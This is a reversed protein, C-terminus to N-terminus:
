IIKELVRTKSIILSNLSSVFVIAVRSCHKMYRETKSKDYSTHEDYRWCGHRLVYQTDYIPAAM